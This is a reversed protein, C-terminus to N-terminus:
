LPNVSWIGGAVERAVINKGAQLKVFGYAEIMVEGSLDGCLFADDGQVCIEIYEWNGKISCLGEIELWNGSTAFLIMSSGESDSRFFVVYADTNINQGSSCDKSKIPGCFIRDVSDNHKMTIGTSGSSGTWDLEPIVQEGGNALPWLVFLKKWSGTIEARYQFVPAPEKIGYRHSVWGQIVPHELGELVDPGQGGFGNHFIVLGATGDLRVYRCKDGSLETEGPPFHFLFNYDHSGKAAFDDFIVIYKDCVNLIGRRHTVPDPLREYGTHGGSIWKVYKGTFASAGIPRAAALWRFDRHPVSQEQEDVSVTNHARTGRFFNRWHSNANYVYTGPDILLDKGNYAFEIHLQDAHGHFKSHPGNKFLLYSDKMEWGSRSICYGGKEFCRFLSGPAKDQLLNWGGVADPGLLWLTEEALERATNKFDGRGFLVAATSLAPRVDSVPEDGLRLAFGDDSDGILPSSGDPKSVWMLFDYMKELRQWLDKSIQGGTARELLAVQLYLYLVFRHYCAAQEWNVGDSYVQVPLEAFLISLAKEKWERARDLEPFVQAILALGAADGVLHNNPMCYISYAMHRDIHDASQVLGRIWDFLTDDDLAGSYLFFHYAWLWSISRLSIELNSQWNVGTEPPNAGLWSKLQSVFERAYREEGTWWYARGLVCFHQHRNLEWLPRVDGLGRGQGGPHLRSWHLLPWRKGKVACHWDINGDFIYKQGLLEFSHDLIKEAKEILGENSGPFVRKLERQYAERDEPVFYFVNRRTRLYRVLDGRTSFRNGFARLVESDTLPRQSFMMRQLGTVRLATDWARYALEGATACQIDKRLGALRKYIEM